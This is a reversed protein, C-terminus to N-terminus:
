GTSGGSTSCFSDFPPARHRLIKGNESVLKLPFCHRFLSLHPTAHMCPIPILITMTNNRSSPNVIMVEMYVGNYFDALMDVVPWPQAQQFNCKQCEVINIGEFAPSIKSHPHKEIVKLTESSAKCLACGDADEREQSM